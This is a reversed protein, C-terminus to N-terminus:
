FVNAICYTTSDASFFQMQESTRKDHRASILLINSHILIHIINKEYDM